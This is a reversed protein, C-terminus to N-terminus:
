LKPLNWTSFCSPRAAVAERVLSPVRKRREHLSVLLKELKDEDGDLWEAPVQKGVGYLVEYPCGVIRTLCQEFAALSCAYVKCRPYLGQLPVDIFEWCPGQFAFGHDIMKAIFDVPEAAPFGRQSPRERLFVCQRCDANAIWKDFALMAAFQPLNAVRPLLADPLFDYVAVRSPEGPYRSGFHWGVAPEIEKTGITIRAGPSERIFEPTIEVLATEPVEIQLYELMASVILENVLIRRHQPNNLFKVVYFDGNSAEILHAQAGGRM